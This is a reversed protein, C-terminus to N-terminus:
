ESTLRLIWLRHFHIWVELGWSVLSFLPIVNLYIHLVIDITLLCLVSGGDRYNVIPTAGGHFLALWEACIWWTNVCHEVCCLAKKNRRIVSSCVCFVFVFYLYIFGFVCQLDVCHEVCCSAKKSRRWWSNVRVVSVTVRNGLLVIHITHVLYWWEMKTPGM